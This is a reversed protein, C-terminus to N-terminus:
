THSTHAVVHAQHTHVPTLTHYTHSLIPTAHPGGQMVSVLHQRCCTGAMWKQWLSGSRLMLYLALGLGQAASPLVSPASFGPGEGGWAGARTQVRCTLILGGKCVPSLFSSQTM